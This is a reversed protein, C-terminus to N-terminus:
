LWFLFLVCLVKCEDSPDEAITTCLKNSEFWENITDNNNLEWFCFKLQFNSRCFNIWYTIQLLLEIFEIFQISFQIFEAYFKYIYVYIYVYLDISTSANDSYYCCYKILILRGDNVRPLKPLCVVCKVNRNGDKM